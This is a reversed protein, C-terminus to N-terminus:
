CTNKVITIGIANSITNGIYIFMHVDLTIHIHDTKSCPELIVPVCCLLFTTAHPLDRLNNKEELLVLTDVFGGSHEHTHTHTHLGM